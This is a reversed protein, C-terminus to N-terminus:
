SVEVEVRVNGGGPIRFKDYGDLLRELIWHEDTCNRNSSNHAVVISRAASRGKRRQLRKEEEEEEEDMIEDEWNLVNRQKRQRRGSGDLEDLMEQSSFQFIHWFELVCNSGIGKM